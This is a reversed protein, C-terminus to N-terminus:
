RRSGDSAPRCGAGGRGRIAVVTAAVIFRQQRRQCTQRRLPLRRQKGQDDLLAGGVREAWTGRQKGMRDGPQEIDTGRRLTQDLSHRAIRCHHRWSQCPASPRQLRPMNGIEQACEHRDMMCQGHAGAGVDQSPGLGVIQVAYQNRRQPGQFSDISRDLWQTRRAEGM